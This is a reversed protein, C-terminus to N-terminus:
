LIHHLKNKKYGYDYKPLPKLGWKHFVHGTRGYGTRLRNLAVWDRRPVDFGQVQETLNEILNLIDPNIKQDQYQDGM